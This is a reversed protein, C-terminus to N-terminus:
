WPVGYAEDLGGMDASTRLTSRCRECLWNGNHASSFQKRCRLCARKKRRRSEGAPKTIPAYRSHRETGEPLPGPMIRRKGGGRGSAWTRHLLGIQEMRHITARLGGPTLGVREAIERDRVRPGLDEIVALIRRQTETCEM